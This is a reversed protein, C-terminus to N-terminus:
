GDVNGLEEVIGLDRLTALCSRVDQGIDAGVAGHEAALRDVLEPATSPAELGAWVASAGGSLQHVDGGGPLAVLVDVGVRRSLAM